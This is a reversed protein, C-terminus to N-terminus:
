KWRTVDVRDGVMLLGRDLHNVNVAFFVEKGERRYSALTATPEKSPREGTQHDTTTIV